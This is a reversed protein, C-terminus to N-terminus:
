NSSSRAEETTTIKSVIRAQEVIDASKFSEFEAQLFDGHTPHDM